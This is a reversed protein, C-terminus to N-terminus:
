PDKSIDAFEAALAQEPSILVHTYIGKRIEEFINANARVTDATVLCPKARPLKSIKEAQQEGVKNLPIIMITITNRRLVSVAQIPVSKRFSTKAVLILDKKKYFLRRVAELQMPKPNFATIHKYCWDKLAICLLDRQVEPTAKTAHELYFQISSFKYVYKIKRM